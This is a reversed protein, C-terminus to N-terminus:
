LLAPLLSAMGQDGSLVWSCGKIQREEKGRFPGWDGGPPPVGAKVPGSANLHCVEITNVRLNPYQRGHCDVERLEYLWTLVGKRGHEAWSCHANKLATSRSQLLMGLCCTVPSVALALSGWLASLSELFPWM